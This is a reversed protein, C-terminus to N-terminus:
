PGGLGTVPIAKRQKCNEAIHKRTASSPMQEQQSKSQNRRFKPREGFCVSNFNSIGKEEVQSMVEQM